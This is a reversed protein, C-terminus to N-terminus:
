VITSGHVANVGVGKLDCSGAHPDLPHLLEVKTWYLAGCNKHMALLLEKGGYYEARWAATPLKEM